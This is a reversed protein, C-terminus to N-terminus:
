NQTMLARKILKQFVVSAVEVEHLDIWEDSTHAQAIGGPGFVVTPIGAENFRSADTGADMTAM